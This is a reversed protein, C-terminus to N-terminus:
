KGRKRRGKPLGMISRMLHWPLLLFIFVVVYATFCVLFLSLLNLPSLFYPIWSFDANGVLAAIESSLESFSKLVVEEGMFYSILDCLADIFPNM